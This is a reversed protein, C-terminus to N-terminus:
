VFFSAWAVFTRELLRAIERLAHPDDLDLLLDSVQGVVGLGTRARRESEAARIQVEHREMQETVDVQMAVVHGPEGDVGPVTSVSVQNWFSSGDRRYCLVTETGSTGTLALERLRRASE